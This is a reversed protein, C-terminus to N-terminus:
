VRERFDRMCARLEQTQTETTPRESTRIAKIYRTALVPLVYYTISSFSAQKQGREFADSAAKTVSRAVVDFAAVSLSMSVQLLRLAHVCCRLAVCRCSLQTLPSAVSHRLSILGCVIRSPLATIIKARLCATNAAVCSWDGSCVVDALFM